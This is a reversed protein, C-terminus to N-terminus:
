AWGSPRFEADDIGQLHTWTSAAPINVTARFYRADIDFFCRGDSDVTVASSSTVSDNIRNRYGVTITPTGGDIIPMLSQLLTRRHPTLELEATTAEGALNSGNFYGLAHTTDFGSLLRRAVGTLSFSDLSITFLDLNPAITDLTEMTYGAQTAGSWIMDLAADPEFHSWKNVDWHYCIGHNPNGSADADQDPYAVVYLSNVPDVAASIRTFFTQNFESWFHLDVRQEGIPTIQQGAEIKYIGSRDIFFTREEYSAISTPLTGGLDISFRLFDFVQPVNAYNMRRIGFEQIILGYEGGIIGQVRGSDPFTQFDAQTTQSQAWSTDDGLGCWSITEPGVDGTYTSSGQSTNGLILFDRVVACWTAIPPNGGLDAFASSTGLTFVQPPDIGNCAIVDNYFQCFSWQGDSPTAYTAGSVDSWTSGSLQYLKTADGAFLVGAGTLDRAFFAGQARAGLADTVTALAPFPRYGPNAPILNLAEIDGDKEFEPSDPRWESFELDM